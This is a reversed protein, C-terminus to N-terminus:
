AVKIRIKNSFIPAKVALGWMGFIIYLRNLQGAIGMPIELVTPGESGLYPMSISSEDLLYMDRVTNGSYTSAVYSGISDGPVPGFGLRGFPTMVGDVEVGPAINVTQGPWRQKDEQQEGFTEIDWPNGWVISPRGGGQQMIEIAAQSIARRLSGTTTPNTAPDVNKVRASNLLARLGTFANADYLGLENAATGGSDTSHGSFIQDQMKKSIARLGGQLELNEPNFGSGSQLAAFQSKLTVGRRTAVIAVNTTQRVYTSEDDTVTGLEGMFVAGGFSTIQQYTHVLGNAPEKPMRGWAPFERIYLEYLVPELDQRILAAGGATDLLKQVQPDLNTNVMNDYANARPSGGSMLWAELPIGQGRKFAQMAFMAQLEASTKTSLMKRMEFVDLPSMVSRSTEPTAQAEVGQTQAIPLGAPVEAQRGVMEKLQELSKELSQLTVEDTM